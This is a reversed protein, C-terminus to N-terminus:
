LVMHVQDESLVVYDTGDKTFGHGGYKSFLVTDGVAVSMPVRSGDPLPRGPGIAVVQGQTPRKQAIDPLVLGGETTTAAEDPRVIIKDDLPRM